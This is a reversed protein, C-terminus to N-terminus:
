GCLGTMADCSRGPDCDSAGTCAPTCTSEEMVTTCAYGARCSSAMPDCSPVCHGITPDDAGDDVCLTGMPCTVSSGMGSLRCGAYVCMGEPWGSGEESVCVGGPCDAVTGCAGGITEPALAMTCLGTGPNCVFGRNACQADATCSPVCASTSTADTPDSPSCSYGERCDADGTCGDLCFTTEGKALCVGDGPCGDSADPADSDCGLFICYSGPYGSEYERLCTGGSCAGPDSSCSQGLERTDFPESCTGEAAYCARGDTCVDDSMCGPGCYQRDPYMESAQCSYGDRCSADDECSQVCLGGGRRTPLCTAGSPCGTNSSPDCGYGLCSGAPWGSSEEDLCYSDPPCVDDDTCADGLRSDPNYCSGAEGFGTDPDCIQGESCDADTDCGPICVPAPLRLDGACGYGLRCDSLDPDCTNFCLAMGRGVPICASEDPCDDGGRGGCYQSCYGDRFGEETPICLGSDCDDESVCPAGVAGASPGPPPDPEIPETVADPRSADFQIGADGASPTVSKSCGATGVFILCAAAIQLLNSHSLGSTSLRDFM